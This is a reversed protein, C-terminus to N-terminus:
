LRNKEMTLSGSKVSRRNIKNFHYNLKFGIQHKDHDEVQHLYVDEIQSSYEWIRTKFIDKCYVTVDLRDKFFSCNLNANVYHHPKRSKFSKNGGTDGYYYLELLLKKSITINNTWSVIGRPDNFCVMEKNVEAQFYPKVYYVSLISHIIKWNKNVGLMLSFDEYRNYNKFSLLLAKLKSDAVDEHEYTGSIYNQKLNYTAVLNFPKVLLKYELKHNTQEQLNPNGEQHMFQNVYYSQNLQFLTPRSVRKSYSLASSVKGTKHSITIFPFFSKNDNNLNNAENLKDNYNYTFIEYRLGLSLNISNGIKSTVDGFLGYKYEKNTYNLTTLESNLDKHGSGSINSLDGGLKIVANKSKVDFFSRLGTVSVNYDINYLFNNSYTSYYEEINQVRDNTKTIYDVYINYNVSSTIPSIFFFDLHHSTSNEKTNVRGNLNTYLANELYVSDVSSGNIDYEYSNLSYSLGVESSKYPTYSCSTQFYYHPVHANTSLSTTQTQNPSLYLKTNFDQLSEQRNKGVMGNVYLNFKNKNISLQIQNEHSTEKGKRIESSLNIGVSDSRKNTKIKIVSTTGEPYEVGPNTIVEISIINRPLIQNLENKNKLERNNIYIIPEGAGLVEFKENDFIVGPIKGLLHETDISKSLSTSNIKTIINGNELKQVPAEAKVSVEELETVSAQLTLHLLDNVNEPISISDVYTQYGIISVKLVPTKFSCNEINFQGEIDTMSGLYNNPNSTDAIIVNAFAVPENNHDSVIGKISQSMLPKFILLILILSTLYTKIM